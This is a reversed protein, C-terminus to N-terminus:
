NKILEKLIHAPPMHVAYHVPLFHATNWNLKQRHLIWQTVKTINEGTVKVGKQKLAEAVNSEISNREPTLYLTEGHNIHSQEAQHHGALHMHADHPFHKSLHSGGVLFGSGNVAAHHRATPKSANSSALTSRHHTGPHAGKNLSVHGAHQAQHPNLTTRSVKVELGSGNNRAVAKKPQKSPTVHTRQTSHRDHAHLADHPNLTTRSVKVDLGSGSAHAQSSHHAVERISHHVSGGLDVGGTKARAYATGTTALVGFVSAGIIRRKRSEKPKFYDEIKSSARFSLGTLKAGLWFYADSPSGAGYDLPEIDAQDLRDNGAEQDITAVEPQSLSEMLEAAAAQRALQNMRLTSLEASNDQNPM